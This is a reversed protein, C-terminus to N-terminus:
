TIRLRTGVFWMIRWQTVVADKGRKGAPFIAMRVLVESAMLKWATVSDGCRHPVIGLELRVTWKHHPTSNRNGPVLGRAVFGGRGRQLLNRCWM